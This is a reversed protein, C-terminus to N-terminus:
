MNLRIKLLIPNLFDLQALRLHTFHWIEFWMYGYLSSLNQGFWLYILQLKGKNLKNM